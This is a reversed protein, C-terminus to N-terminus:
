EVILKQSVSQGDTNTQQVVYVGKAWNQSPIELTKSQINNQEFLIKGDISQINVYHLMETSKLSIAQNNSTPNPFLNFNHIKPKESTGTPTAIFRYVIGSSPWTTVPILSADDYNLHTPNNPNGYFTHVDFEPSVIELESTSFSAFERLSIPSPSGGQTWSSPGYRYEINNTGEYLWLQVNAYDIFPWNTDADNKINKYQLKFIRNGASGETIYNIDADNTYGNIDYKYPHFAFTLQRALSLPTSYGIINMMTDGMNELHPYFGSFYLTDTLHDNFSFEFDLPIRYYIPTSISPFFLPIEEYAQSDAEFFYIQANVIAGLINTIIALSLLIKKM